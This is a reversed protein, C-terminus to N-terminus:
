GTNQVAIQGRAWADVTLLQDLDPEAVFAHRDLVDEVLPLIDRFRIRGERFAEVAAENAANLAAGCTGGRRAVEHGL